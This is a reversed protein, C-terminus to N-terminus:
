FGIQGIVLSPIFQQTNPIYTARIGIDFLIYNLRLFNVDFGIEASISQYNTLKTELGNVVDRGQGVDYLLAGKIRQINLLPGLAIDPYFLPFRYELSSTILSEHNQYDYGRTFLIPSSFYYSGQRNQQRQYGTRLSLSHHKIFSPLYIRGQTGFIEGSFDTGLTHAYNATFVFGFKPALDRPAVKLVSRYAIGYNLSGFQRDRFERRNFNAISRYSSTIGMSLSRRYKSNTLILPVQVGADLVTEDWTLSVVQTQNTQSNVIRGTGSRGGYRLGLNLMPFWGQYSMKAFINGIQENANYEYGASAQMTSLLNQSFLGIQLKEPDNADLLPSWSHINFIGSILPYPEPKWPTNPIDKLVQSNGEQEVWVKYFHTNRDQVKERPIWNEPNLSMEAINMGDKSFDNFLLTKFDASICPNYAAFKRSTLQYQKNNELDLVYINDIGNYPSNYFVYNRVKVPHGFNEESFPLLNQTEGTDINLLAITKGQNRVTKLFVIEKGNDAFRPMGIYHNEPNEFRKIEAGTEADLIVLQMSGNTQNDITVVMKADPSLASSSFRTKRRLVTLKQKEVDYIKVVRFTKMQWRPDFEFENWVVKNQAASLMVHDSFIGLTFVKSEKGNKDIKVLTQIDGLGSKVAVISGDALYQPFEYDTYVKSKRQNLTSAETIPLDQIQKRWLSDLSQNMEQYTKVLYKGTHKKIANSFTFPLISQGFAKQTIPSWIKGDQMKQRIHTTFLYGLVYHNPVQHKLSRLHAKNYTFAGRELLNTRYLLDFNPIRGRGSPSLATEMGVADGEWFWNPVSLAGLGSLALNGFVNYVLKSFGTKSKEYQVVHRFEHIMLLNLWDNTGIFNYDQPPLTFFESRRPVLTVFANSIASQNQLLISIPKPNRELSLGEVKYIQELTNATRLAEKEFNIPYIIRFNPTNLQHWKVSPPNQQMDPIQAFSSCAFHLLLLAFSFSLYTLRQM